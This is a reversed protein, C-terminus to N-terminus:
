RRLYRGLQVLEGGGRALPPPASRQWASALPESGHAGRHEPARPTLALWALAIGAAAGLALGLWFTAAPRARTTARVRESVRRLALDLDASSDAAANATSGASGPGPTAAASAGLTARLERELARCAACADLHQLLARQELPELEGYVHLAVHERWTAHNM